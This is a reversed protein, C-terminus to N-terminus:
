SSTSLESQGEPLGQTLAEIDRAGVGSLRSAVEWLLDIAQASKSGLAELDAKSDSFLRQGGEDVLCRAVLRARVHELNFGKRKGEPTFEVIEAEFKDRDTGTMGQILVSGEWEPVYVEETKRDRVGLIVDRSLYRTTVAVGDGSQQRDM